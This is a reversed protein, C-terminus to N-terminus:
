LVKKPNALYHDVTLLVGCVTAIATRVAVPASVQNTIAEALGLYGITKRLVNEVQTVTIKM